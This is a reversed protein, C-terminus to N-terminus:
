DYLHDDVRTYVIDNNHQEHRNPATKRNQLRPRRVDVHTPDPNNVNITRFIVWGRRQSNNMKMPSIQGIVVYRIIHKRCYRRTHLLPIKRCSFLTCPNIEYMITIITSTSVNSRCGHQISSTRIFREYQQCWYLM